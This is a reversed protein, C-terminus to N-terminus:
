LESKPHPDVASYPPPKDHISDMNALSLSLFKQKNRWELQSEAFGSSESPPPPPDSVKTILYAASAEAIGYILVGLLPVRLLIYFGIGFGFLLGERSRFWKRKQESTFRIRAFYPELLERVLSRSAFYSQLFIVLYRRPLLVGTGFIVSAPGLGVARNFTWFSAAPLVFRGVYPLYSAAFVALSIAGKRAFRYIFMSINEATSTSNTTGDRATYQRLNPYYMSRLKSPDQDHKHKNVYTTDVWRISDMFRYPLQNVSKDSSYLHPWISVFLDDLTPTVYRMLSMFFLPAQLVHEEVFGLGGVLKDDWTANSLDIGFSLFWLLVRIGIIPISILLRILVGAAVAIAAQKYHRSTFIGPNQLARQAGVLTLQVGRIVANLDFHSIDFKRKVQEAVVDFSQRRELRNATAM